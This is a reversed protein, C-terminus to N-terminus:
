LFLLLVKLKKTTEFYEKRNKNEPNKEEEFYETTEQTINESNGDYYRSSSNSELSQNFNEMIEPLIGEVNYEIGFYIEEFNSNEFMNSADIM